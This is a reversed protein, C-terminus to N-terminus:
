RNIFIAKCKFCINGKQTCNAILRIRKEEDISCTLNAELIKDTLPNVPLLFKLEDAKLLLLRKGIMLEALEKMMQMLCAGPVVPQGPFHGEYVSHNENLQLIFHGPKKVGADLIIYFDNQLM